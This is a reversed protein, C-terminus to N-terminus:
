NIDSLWSGLEQLTDLSDIMMSIKTMHADPNKAKSYTTSVKVTYSGKPSENESVTMFTKTRGIYEDGVDAILFQKMDDKYNTCDSPNSGRRPQM